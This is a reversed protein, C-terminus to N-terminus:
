KLEIKDVKVLVILLIVLIIVNEVFFGLIQM